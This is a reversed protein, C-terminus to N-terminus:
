PGAPGREDHDLFGTGVTVKVDGPSFCRQGFLAAHSDGAIGAIPLPAPLAGDATTEGLLGSSSVLEPLMEVPIGFHRCLEPPGM